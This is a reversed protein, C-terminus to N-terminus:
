LIETLYLVCTSAIIILTITSPSMPYGGYFINKSAFLADSVLSLSASFYPNGIYNYFYVISMGRDVLNASPNPPPNGKRFYSVGWFHNERQRKQPVRRYM